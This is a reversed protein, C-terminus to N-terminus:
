VVPRASASTVSDGASRMLWTGTCPMAVQRRGVDQRPHPHEVPWFMTRASRSAARRRRSPEGHIASAVSRRWSGAVISIWIV